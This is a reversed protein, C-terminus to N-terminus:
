RPQPPQAQFDYLPESDKAGADAAKAWLRWHTAFFATAGRNASFASRDLDVWYGRRPQSIEFVRMLVEGDALKIVGRWSERAHDAEALDGTRVIEICADPYFLVNDDWMDTRPVIAPIFDPDTSGIVAALLRGETEIAVAFASHGNLWLEYFDGPSLESPKSIQFSKLFRM